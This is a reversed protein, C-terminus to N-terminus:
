GGHKAGEKGRDKPRKSSAMEKISQGSLVSRPETKVPNRRADAGDDRMKVLLWKEGEGTRIFAYGGKLKKGELWIVIHGNNLAQEATVHKGDKEKLIRYTGTDWVIVTGAGYEGEPIVGEFNAYEMPHNETRMALRKERPDTSPGKPVAWSVLVGGIELRFDYHLNSADHKQIAFIPSQDSRTLKRGSPEHTKGFDRKKNYEVLSEDKNM